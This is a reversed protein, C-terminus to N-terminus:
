VQDVLAVQVLLLGHVVAVLIQLESGQRALLLSQTIAWPAVMLHLELHVMEVLVVAATVLQLGQSTQPFDPEVM